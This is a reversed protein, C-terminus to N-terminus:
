QRSIISKKMIVEQDTLIRYLYTGPPLHRTDTTARKLEGAQVDGTFVDRVVRGTIDLLEIRVQSAYDLRYELNTFRTAPNPWVVFLKRKDFAHIGVGCTDLSEMYKTRKLTDSGNKNTAILIVDYFGAVPFRVRPSDASSTDPSAGPFQWFYSTGYESENLFSVTDHICVERTLVRFDADPQKTLDIQFRETVGIVNDNASNIFRVHCDSSNATPTEFRYSGDNNTSDHYMWSSGGDVSYEVRLRDMEGTWDWTVYYRRGVEFREDRLPTHMNFMPADLEMTDTAGTVATNDANVVRLRFENTAEINRPIDFEYGGDNATNSTGINWNAGGDTTYEVQIFPFSGNSEWTMYYSRGAVMNGTSSPFPQILTVNQPAITFKGSIDFAQSNDSNSVRVRCETSPTNPITWIQSGDNTSNTLLINWTVGNDTSYELKVEDFCCSSTWNIHYDRGVYFISGFVPGTVVINQAGIEFPMTAASYSNNLVDSIRIGCRDSLAYPVDDWKYNGDNPTSAELLTWSAGSDTTYEIRVNAVSDDEIWTIYHDRGPQWEAGPIPSLMHLSDTPRITDIAFNADSADKTAIDAANRVRVQASGSFDHPVKWRYIGDNATSTTVDSWSSGGDTSYQIRVDTFGGGSSTWQIPHYEDAYYVEGGNPREVTIGHRVISFTGSEDIAAADDKNTLRVKVDNSLEYPAQWRYLGDNSASLTVVQWTSGGNTSYEVLVNAFEGTHEWQISLYEGPTISAGSKPNTIIITPSVIDFPHDSVDFSSADDVNSIRWLYGTGVDNPVTWRYGGDNSTSAIVVNWTSGGNTSYEIKVDPFNGTHDWQIAVENGVVYQDNLSESIITIEPSVIAFVAASQDLNASNSSDSIRVLSTPSPDNPITWSYSGDNSTGYEILTWSSGNDTSYELNVADIPIAWDWHIGYRNGVIVTDGGDFTNLTLQQGNATTVLTCLFVVAAFIRTVM